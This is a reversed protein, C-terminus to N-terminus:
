AAPSAAKGSFMAPNGDRGLERPLCRLASVRIDSARRGRAHAAISALLRSINLWARKAPQRLRSTPRSLWRRRRAACAGCLAVEARKEEEVAARVAEMDLTEVARVLEEIREASHEVSELYLVIQQRFILLAPGGSLGFMEAIAPEAGADVRAFRAHPVRQAATELMVSAGSPGSFEVVLLDHDSVAAGFTDRTLIILSMVQEAFEVTVRQMM